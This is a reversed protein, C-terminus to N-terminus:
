KKRVDNLTMSRLQSVEQEAANLAKSLRKIEARSKLGSFIRLGLLLGLLGGSVFATIIWVSVPQPNLEWSGFSIAIPASNFYSFSISAAFVLLLFFGSLVRSIKNM